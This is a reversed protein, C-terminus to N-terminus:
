APGGDLFGLAPNASELLGAAEGLRGARIMLMLRTARGPFLCRKLLDSTAAEEDGGPAQARALASHLARLAAIEGPDTLPRLPRWRRLAQFLPEVAIPKGLHEDMGAELIRVRDEDRGHATMAIIPLDGAWPADLARLGRAAEFGDMVPMQVDMLALDFPAAAPRAEFLTLAAKGNDALTVTMGASTLIEEAIQQNIENDEVVLIRMGELSEGSDPDPPEPSRAPSKPPFLTMLADLLMSANVPKHLFADVGSNEALAGAGSWSYPSLLVVKPAPYLDQAQKIRRVTELSDSSARHWALIVLDFPLGSSGARVLFEQAARPDEGCTAELGFGRLLAGVGALDEANADLVLVRIGRLFVQSRGRERGQLALPLILSFVVEEGPASRVELRGDMLRALRNSLALGFGKSSTGSMSEPLVDSEGAFIRRLTIMQQEPISEGTNAVEILLTAKDETAELRFCSLRVHGRATFHLSNDLFNALIQELRSRDGSVHHPIDPPIRFILSVGKGEALPAYRGRLAELSEPLDFNVNKVSLKGAELRSIELVDNIIKLLSSGAAHIKLLYAEKRPDLDEKLALYAMGIIANMPTRVEHSINALFESKSRDAAEASKRAALLDRERKDLAGAMSNLSDALDTFELCSRELHVKEGYEGRGFRGAAALLLNIQPLFFLRTLMAALGIMGAFAIGLFLLRRQFFVRGGAQLFSEPVVLVAQMYPYAREPLFVREFAVLRGDTGELSFMGSPSDRATLPALIEPPIEPPVRGSARAFVTRGDMDALYVDMDPALRLSRLLLDYFAIRVELGLVAARSDSCVAPYGFHLAPRQDIRSVTMTGPILTEAGLAQRFYSRDAVSIRRPGAADPFIVAGSEEALFVRAFAPHNLSNLFDLLENSACDLSGAQALTSLLTESDATVRRQAQAVASVLEMVQERAKLTEEASNEMEAFLVSGLAPVVALAMLLVTTRLFSSSLFEWM